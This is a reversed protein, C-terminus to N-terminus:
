GRAERLRAAADEPRIDNIWVAAGSESGALYKLRGEARRITFIEAGLHWADRSQRVPAQQWGSIYPTPTDFLQDFARLVGVYMEALDKREVDDLAPLDPVHRRPVLRVEYPWRAAFPVYAVWHESACVVRAGEDVEAELLECQLCRGTRERHREFAEATRYFRPPVFPYGYIQGHPHSLTVGIEEGRNEFCFVYDITEVASLALTRDIWADIVTEVQPLPLQSFSSDHDSSFCVVECRGAAPGSRFPPVDVLPVVEDSHLSFSPFRNEFVVVEYDDAPIETQKGDRSPDLPCLDAPPKYTRAQRHGAIVSYDRMLPNWRMQSTTVAQPLDTRGDPASRDHGSERDYYFLERGDALHIMSRSTM